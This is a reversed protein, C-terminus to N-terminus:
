RFEEMISYAPCRPLSCSWWSPPIPSTEPCRVPRPTLNLCFDKTVEFHECIIWAVSLFLSLITSTTFFMSLRQSNSYQASLLCSVNDIRRACHMAYM